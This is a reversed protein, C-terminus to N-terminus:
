LARAADNCFLTECLSFDLLSIHQKPFISEEVSLESLADKVGGKEIAEIYNILTEGRGRGYPLETRGRAECASVLRQQLFVEFANEIVIIALDHEGRVHSLEKADLLLQQFLQIPAGSELLSALKRASEDTMVEKLHGTKTPNMWNYLQKYPRFKANTGGSTFEYNDSIFIDVIPADGITPKTVDEEQTVLRYTNVFYRLVGEVWSKLENFRDEDDLVDLSDVEFALEIRTYKVPDVTGGTSPGAVKKRYFTRLIAKQEARVKRVQFPEVEYDGTLWGYEEGTYSFLKAGDMTICRINVDRESMHIFFGSDDPIELHTQLSLSFLCLIM